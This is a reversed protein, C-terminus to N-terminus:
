IGDGTETIIYTNIVMYVPHESSVKPESNIRIDTVRMFTDSNELRSLFIGLQHYGCVAKVLIPFKSYAGTSVDNEKGIIPPYPKITVIKVESNKAMDSLEKLLSSIQKETSFKKKHLSLKEQLEVIQQKHVPMNRITSKAINLERKLRSMQPLIHKLSNISPMIFLRLDTFLFCVLILIYTILKQNKRIQEKLNKM